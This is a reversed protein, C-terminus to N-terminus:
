EAIMLKLNLFKTSAASYIPLYYFDLLYTFLLMKM